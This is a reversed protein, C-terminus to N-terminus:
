QGLDVEMGSMDRPMGKTGSNIAYVFESKTGLIDECMVVVDGGDSIARKYDAEEFVGSIHGQIISYPQIPQYGKRDLRDKSYFTTQGGGETGIGLEKFDLRIGDFSLSNLRLVINWNLAPSPLNGLNKVELICTVLRYGPKEPLDGGHAIQEFEARLDPAPKPAELKDQLVQM